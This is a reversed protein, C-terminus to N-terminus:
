KSLFPLLYLKDRPKGYKNVFHLIVEIQDCEPTGPAAAGEYDYRETPAKALQCTKLIYALLAKRSKAPRVPLHAMLHFVRRLVAERGARSTKNVARKIEYAKEPKLQIYTGQLLAAQRRLRRTSKEVEDFRAQARLYSKWFYETDM